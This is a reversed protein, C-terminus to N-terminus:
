LVPRILDEGDTEGTSVRSFKGGNARALYEKMARSMKARRDKLQRGPVFCLLLCLGIVVAGILTPLLLEVQWKMLGTTHVLLEESEHVVPLVSEEIADEADKLRSISVDGKLAGVGRAAGRPEHSHRSARRTTRNHHQAAHPPHNFM